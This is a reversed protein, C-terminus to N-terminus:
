LIQFFPIECYPFNLPMFLLVITQINTPSRLQSSMALSIILSNLIYDVSVEWVSLHIYFSSSFFQFVMHLFQPVLVLHIVYTYHSCYFSFFYILSSLNSVIILSLKCRYDGDGFWLCLFSLSCLMPYVVFFTCRPILSTM